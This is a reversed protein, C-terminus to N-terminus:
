YQKVRNDPLGIGSVTSELITKKIKMEKFKFEIMRTAIVRSQSWALGVWGSRWTGCFIYYYIHLFFYRFPLSYFNSKIWMRRQLKTGFLNPKDSLKNLHYMNLAEYTSYKNQKEVWHTFSPSDYHELFGQVKVVKGEIIPHENVTVESFRCKGTRWVRVVEQYIPIPKGMFWLRRKFRMGTLNPNEMMESISNKLEVTMREDPDLKMVWESKIPLNELAFNWQEGFGLFKHQVIHVNNKLAIDVTDDKSYSDVIFIESAWESINDIFSQLNHGENLTILVVAITKKSM